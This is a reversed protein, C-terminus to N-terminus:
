IFVSPNCRFRKALAKIHRKNLERKGSLIESIVGPSGLETLDKQKLGHEKMLYKLCDMPNGEPELINEDEYVEILTGVTDLLGMLPHNQNDGIQDILYDSFEILRNLDDDNRPASLVPSVFAWSDIIKEYGHVM